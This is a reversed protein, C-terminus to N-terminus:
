CRLACDPSWPRVRQALSFGLAERDTRDAEVCIGGGSGHRGCGQLPRSAVAVAGGCDGGGLGGSVVAGGSGDVPNGAIPKAGAVDALATYGRHDRGFGLNPQGCHCLDRRSPDNSLAPRHVVADHHGVAWFSIRTLVVAALWHGLAVGSVAQMVTGLDVEALRVSLLWAFLALLGLSLVARM